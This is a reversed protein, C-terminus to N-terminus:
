LSNFKDIKKFLAQFYALSLLAACEKSIVHIVFRMLKLGKSVLGPLSIWSVYFLGLMPLDISVPSGKERASVGHNFSSPMRKLLSYFLIRVVLCMLLGAHPVRSTTM